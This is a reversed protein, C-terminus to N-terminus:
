HEAAEEAEIQLGLCCESNPLSWNTLSVNVYKGM